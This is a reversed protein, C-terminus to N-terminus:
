LSNKKIKKNKNKNNNKTLPRVYKKHYIVNKGEWKQGGVM